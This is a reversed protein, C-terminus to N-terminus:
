ENWFSQPLALCSAYTSQRVGGDREDTSRESMRYWLRILLRARFLGGLESRLLLFQLLLIRAFLLGLRLFGLRDDFGERGVLVGGFGSLLLDEGREIGRLELGIVGLSDLGRPIRPPLLASVELGLIASVRWGRASKDNRERRWINGTSQVATM